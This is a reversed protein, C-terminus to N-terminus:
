TVPHSVNAKQLPNHAEILDMEIYSFSGLNICEATFTPTHENQISGYGADANQETTILGEPLVGKLNLQDNITGNSYRTWTAERDLSYSGGRILSLNVAVFDENAWDIKASHNYMQATFRPEYIESAISLAGKGTLSNDYVGVHLFIRDIIWNGEPYFNMYAQNNDDDQKVVQCWDGYTPDQYNTDDGGSGDPVWQLRYRLRDEMNMTSPIFTEKWEDCILLTVQSYRTYKGAKLVIKDFGQDVGNNYVGSQYVPQFGRGLNIRTGFDTTFTTLATQAIVSCGAMNVFKEEGADGLMIKVERIM